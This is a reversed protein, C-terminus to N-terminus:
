RWAIEVRTTADGTWRDALWRVGLRDDYGTLYAPVSERWFTLAFEAAALDQWADDMPTWEIELAIGDNAASRETMDWVQFPALDFGRVANAPSPQIGPALHRERAL